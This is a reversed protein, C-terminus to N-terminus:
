FTDAGLPPRYWRAALDKTTDRPANFPSPKIAAPLCEWGQPAAEISAIVDDPLWAFADGRKFETYRGAIDNARKSDSEAKLFNCMVKIHGWSLLADAAPAYEAGVNSGLARVVAGIEGNKSLLSLRLRRATSPETWDVRSRVFEFDERKSFRVLASVALDLGERSKPPRALRSMLVRRVVNSRRPWISQAMKAVDTFAWRADAIKGILYERGKVPELFVLAPAIDVGTKPLSRPYEAELGPIVRPGREFLLQMCRYNQQKDLLLLPFYETWDSDVPVGPAYLGFKVVDSLAGSNWDCEPPTTPASDTVNGSAALFRKSWRGAFTNENLALAELTKRAEEKMGVSMQSLAVLVRVEDRYAFSPHERFVREGWAIQWRAVGESDFSRWGDPSTPDPVSNPGPYLRREILSRIRVPDATDLRVSGYWVLAAYESTPFEKLVRITMPSFGNARSVAEADAGTPQRVIIEVPPSELSGRFMETPTTSRNSEDQADTSVIAKLRNRGPVDTWERCTDTSRTDYCLCRSAPVPIAKEGGAAMEEWKVAGIPAPESVALPRCEVWGNGHELLVRVHVGIAPFLVPSASRNKVTLRLDPNVYPLQESISSSLKLELAASPPAACGVSLSIALVPPCIRWPTVARCWAAVTIAFLSASPMDAARLM